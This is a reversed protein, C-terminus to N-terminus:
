MKALKQQMESTNGTKTANAVSGWVNGGAANNDDDDSVAGNLDDFTYKKPQDEPQYMFNNM